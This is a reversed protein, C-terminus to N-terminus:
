RGFSGRRLDFELGVYSQITDSGRGLDTDVVIQAFARVPGALPWTLFADMKKRRHRNTVFIDSRGWGGEVYSGQFFGNTAILGLALEHAAMASGPAGAVDLFGAEAKFYLNAPDSGNKNVTLFEFRLGVHGELSSANRIMFLLDAAPDKGQLNRQCLFFGANAGCDVEASRMGHMSEGYLWLQPKGFLRYSFNFGGVAREQKVSSSDPNLYLRQEAASFTDIGLGFYVTVEFDNRADQAYATAFLPLILLLFM